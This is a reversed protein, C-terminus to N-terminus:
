SSYKKELHKGYLEKLNLNEPLKVIGSLELVNPSVDIENSQDSSAVMNFYNEVMASLSQKNKRAYKKAREIIKKNLKLTLKTDM